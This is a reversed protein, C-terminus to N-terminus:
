LGRGAPSPSLIRERDALVPTTDPRVGRWAYFSEAAQEVLMGWGDIARAAGQENAWALFPEAAAGYSLDYCIFSHALQHAPPATVARTYGAATANIILDFRAEPWHDLGGSTVKGNSGAALEAAREAGRNAVHLRAPSQALLPGLVGRAAGGAGLLLVKKEHISVGQNITLDRIFGIGDTNDGILEGDAGQWLTNVARAERARPSLQKALDHAEGKFPLTINRGQGGAAFFADVTAAFEERAVAQKRYSLTQGTQRAFRAHLAPSVSHAVPNGFVAYKDL